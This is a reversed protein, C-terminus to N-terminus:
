KKVADLVAGLGAGAAVWFGANGCGAAFIGGMAMGMGVRLGALLVRRVAMPMPRWRALRIEARRSRGVFYADLTVLDTAAIQMAFERLGANLPGRMVQRTPAVYYGFLVLVLKKNARAFPRAAL